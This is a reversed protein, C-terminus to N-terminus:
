FEYRLAFQMVRNANAQTTIQGFTPSNINAGPDAFNTHNFANYAEARFQLFHKESWPMSFNKALSMDFNVFGPGRLNNRTGMEGGFPNRLAATAATPDAFLQIVGNDDHIHTALASGPGTQVAPSDFVFGVPFSGTNTSFAFGSRATFITAFQWGGVVANVFGNSNRAFKRGKGFPLDYVGNASFVHTVDFDSPGRCVRLNTSDCVLGGVVTNAVSSVNDISRSFTYNFDFQLGHAFNRKLTVLLGNYSSSGFNGIYANTSFQGPLGTNNAVLGFANLAQLTDSLDGKVVLNGIADAILQTCGAFCQNEFWPQPTVTSVGDRVEQSL